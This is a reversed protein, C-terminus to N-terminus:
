AATFLDLFEDLLSGIVIRMFSQKPEGSKGEVGFLEYSLAAIPHHM